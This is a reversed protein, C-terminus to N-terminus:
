RAIEGTELFSIHLAVNVGSRATLPVFEDLGRRAPFRTLDTWDGAGSCGTPVRQLARFTAGPHLSQHGQKPTELLTPLVQAYVSHSTSVLGSGPQPPFKLLAHHGLSMPGNMGTILHRLYVAPRGDVLTLYKDVRGKCVATSLSVHLTLRNTADSNRNLSRHRYLGEVRWRDNAMEGHPPHHEGRFSVENAGFPCCFFDGRLARLPAPTGQPFKEGSMTWPAIAYPQVRREVKSVRGKKQRSRVPPEGTVTFTVPALPEGFRTLYASVHSSEVIWSPQGLLTRLRLLAM